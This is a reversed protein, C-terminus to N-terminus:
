VKILMKHYKTNKFLLKVVFSSPRCAIAIGVHLFTRNNASMTFSQGNFYGFKTRMKM